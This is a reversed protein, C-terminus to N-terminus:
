IKEWAHIIKQAKKVEYCEVEDQDYWPNEKCHFKNELKNQMFEVAYYKDNYYFICLYFNYWPDEEQGDTIDFSVIDIAKKPLNLNNRLFDSKLKITPM